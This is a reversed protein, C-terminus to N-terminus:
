WFKYCVGFVAYNVSSFNYVEDNDAGGELIRYGAKIMLRETPYFGLALSVDEARGQNGALADGDLIVSAMPIFKWNAYFRVLPVIGLNTKEASVMSNSLRIGADRIKGTVGLAVTINDRAVINFQYTLRYSNFRWTANTNQDAMFTKDMFIIDRDPTGNSKISLPAYLALISHRKGIDYQLRARIYPAVETKFDNTLSLYTGTTGSIRVDNYGQKAAGGELDISLQSYCFSCNIFLLGLSLLILKM